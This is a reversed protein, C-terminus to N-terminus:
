ASDVTVGGCDKRFNSLIQGAGSGPIQFNGRQGSTEADPHKQAQETEGEEMGRGSHRQQGGMPGVLRRLGALRRGIGGMRDIEVEGAGPLFGPESRCGGGGWAAPEFAGGVVEGAQWGRGILDLAEFGRGVVGGPPCDDIFEEGAGGIAFAPCPVPHVDGAVGVGLAVVEVAVVAVGEGVGVAVPEDAGEVLIEGVVAEDLELDGGIVEGVARIM